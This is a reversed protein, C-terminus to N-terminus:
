TCKIEIKKAIITLTFDRYHGEIDGETRFVTWRAMDEENGMDRCLVNYKFINDELFVEVRKILDKKFEFLFERDLWEEYSDIEGVHDPRSDRYTSTKWPAVDSFLDQESKIFLYQTYDYRIDQCGTPNYDAVKEVVRGVWKEVTKYRYNIIHM